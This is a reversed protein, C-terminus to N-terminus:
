FKSKSLNIIKDWIPKPVPMVSLRSIRLLEWNKFSKEKKMQELSVPKDLRRKYKVDVVVFRENDEEPNPYPKSTVTMIGVAQREDGTHYYLVSDGKKMNRMHKLALNNRVGDWVTTKEKQLISFNYGRPGSPEQKVLWYNAM